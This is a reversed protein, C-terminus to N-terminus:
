FVTEGSVDRRNKCVTIKISNIFSIDACKGFCVSKLFLVFPIMVKRELEVFRSYSLLSPSNNQLYEVVYYPYFHKLNRFSGCHFCIMITMMEADFMTFSHNQHRKGDYPLM